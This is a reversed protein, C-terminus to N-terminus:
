VPPTSRLEENAFRKSAVEPGSAELKHHIQEQNLARVGITEAGTKGGGLVPFCVPKRERGERMSRNVDLTNALEVGARKIGKRELVGVNRVVDGQSVEIGLRHWTKM